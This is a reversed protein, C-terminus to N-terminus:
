GGYAAKILTINDNEQLKTEEWHTKPIVKNNIAIAMRKDEERHLIKLVDLVSSNENIQITEDNVFITIMLHM